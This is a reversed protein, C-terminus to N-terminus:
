IQRNKVSNYVTFYVLTEFQMVKTISVVPFETVYQIGMYTSLKTFLKM